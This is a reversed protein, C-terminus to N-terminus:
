THLLVTPRIFLLFVLGLVTLKNKIITAALEKPSSPKNQLLCLAKIIAIFVKDKADDHHISDFDFNLPPLSM